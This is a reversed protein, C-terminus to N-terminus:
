EEGEKEKEEEEEEMDMINNYIQAFAPLSLLWFM